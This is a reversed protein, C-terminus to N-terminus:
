CTLYIATITPLNRRNILPAPQVNQLFFDLLPTEYEELLPHTDAWVPTMNAHFRYKRRLPTQPIRKLLGQYYITNGVAYPPNVQLIRTVIARLGSVTSSPNYAGKYTECGSGPFIVLSENGYKGTLGYTDRSQQLQTYLVDYWMISHEIFPMYPTVDLGFYQQADLAM